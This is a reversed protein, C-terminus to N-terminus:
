QIRAGVRTCYEALAAQVEQPTQAVMSAIPRQASFQALTEAVHRRVDVVDPVPDKEKVAGQTLKSYSAAYGANAELEELLADDDDDAPEEDDPKICQQVVGSLLKAFANPRDVVSPCQTLFKLAAVCTLKRETKGTVSVIDLAIVNELIMDFIGQQVKNMSDM